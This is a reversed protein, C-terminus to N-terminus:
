AKGFADAFPPKLPVRGGIEQQLRKIIEKNEEIEAELRKIADKRIRDLQLTANYIEGMPM